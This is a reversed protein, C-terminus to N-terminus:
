SQGSYQNSRLRSLLRQLHGRDVKDSTMVLDVIPDALLEDLDPEIGAHLYADVATTAPTFRERRAKKAKRAQGAKRAQTTQSM